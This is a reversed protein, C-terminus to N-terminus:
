PIIKTGDYKIVREIYNRSKKRKIDMERKHADERTQFEEWYKLTWDSVKSTYTSIGSNHQSLRVSLDETHGVYYRDLIASYIIYCYFKM